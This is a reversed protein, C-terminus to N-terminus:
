RSCNACWACAIPSRDATPTPASTTNPCCSNMPCIGWARTSMSSTSGPACRAGRAPPRGACCRRDIDSRDMARPRLNGMFGLIRRCGRCAPRRSRRSAARAISRAPGATGCSSARSRGHKHVADTMLAHARIDKDDWLIAFPLPSDDSSPHISVAGTCVVGWGGEAKIERFSARVHPLANTMGSAHPVQYFRNPATVPGIRVPDFLVDFRPNRAMAFRHAAADFEGIRTGPCVPFVVGTAADYWAETLGLTFVFCDAELFMRAVCDLHFARDCELDHITDFGQRQVGPRLLDFWGSKEKAFLGSPERQAFAFEILQRLQRATYINGYRASFVGYSLEERRRASLLHPPQEAVFHTLDLMGLNKAIHQAFCSGATAIRDSATLKFKTEALFDIESWIRSAVGDRWFRDPPLDKYPHM